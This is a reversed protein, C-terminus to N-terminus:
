YGEQVILAKWKLSHIDRSEADRRTGFKFWYIWLRVVVRWVSLLLIGSMMSRMEEVGGAGAAPFGAGDAGAGGANDELGGCKEAVLVEVLAAGRGGGCNVKESSISTKEKGDALACWSDCSLLGLLLRRNLSSNSKVAGAGVCRLDLDLDGFRLRLGFM